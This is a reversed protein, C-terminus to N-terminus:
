FINWKKLLFFLPTKHDGSKISTVTREYISYLTEGNWYLYFLYIIFLIIFSFISQKWDIYSHRLLYIPLFKTLVVMSMYQLLLIGDSQVTIMYIFTFISSISGIILAFMPNMNQYIWITIPNNKLSIKQVKELFYYLLFWVIIWYSFLFDPRIMGDKDVTYKKPDLKPKKELEKEM